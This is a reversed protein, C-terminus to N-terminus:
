IEENDNDDHIIITFFFIYSFRLSEAEKIIQM